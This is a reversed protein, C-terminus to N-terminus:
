RLEEAHVTFLLEPLAPEGDLPSMAIRLAAPYSEYDPSWQDTWQPQADAQPAGYYLITAGALDRVLLTSRVPPLELWDDSGPDLPAIDLYLSTVDGDRAVRVTLQLLGTGALSDPAPAVFRAADPDGSFAIEREKGEHRSLPVLQSFQRRLFDASSRLEETRDARRVGEELSRSGLRLAGFAASMLLGLIAIAVLLEVLTFGRAAM